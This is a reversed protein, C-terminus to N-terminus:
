LRKKKSNWGKSIKLISTFYRLVRLKHSQHCIFIKNFLFVDYKSTLPKFSDESIKIIYKENNEGIDMELPINDEIIKVKELDYTINKEKVIHLFRRLSVDNINLYKGEILGSSYRYTIEDNAVYEEIVGVIDEDIENFINVLPNYTFDKGYEINQGATRAKIFDKVSKLVYMKKNGIKFDAQFYGSTKKSNLNVELKIKEKPHKLVKLKNLIDEGMNEAKKAIEENKAKRASIYKSLVACIHKCIYKNRPTTNNHFDLCDCYTGNIESSNGDILVKVDYHSYSTQSYVKSTIEIFEMERDVVERLNLVKGARVLENGKQKKLFQIKGEFNESLKKISFNM